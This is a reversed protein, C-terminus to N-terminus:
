DSDSDIENFYMSPMENLREWLIWRTYGDGSGSTLYPDDDSGCLEFDCFKNKNEQKNENLYCEHFCYFQLPEIRAFGDQHAVAGDEQKIEGTPVLIHKVRQYLDQPTYIKNPEIGRRNEAFLFGVYDGEVAIYEKEPTLNKYDDSTLFLKKSVALKIWEDFEQATEM